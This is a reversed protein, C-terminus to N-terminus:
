DCQRQEYNTAVELTLREISTRPHIDRVWDGAARSIGVDNKGGEAIVSKDKGRRGRERSVGYMDGSQVLFNGGGCLM